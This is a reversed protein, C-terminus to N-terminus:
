CHCCFQWGAAGKFIDEVSRPESDATVAGQHSQETLHVTANTISASNDIPLYDSQWVTQSEYPIPSMALESVNLFHTDPEVKSNILPNFPAEISKLNDPPNIVEINEIPTEALPKLEANRSSKWPAKDEVDELQLFCNPTSFIDSLFSLM